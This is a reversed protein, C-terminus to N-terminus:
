AAAERSALKTAILADIEGMDWLTRGGIKIPQPIRGAAVGRWVTAVHCDGLASAVERVDGLRRKRDEM